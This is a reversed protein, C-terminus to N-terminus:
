MNEYQVILRHVPPSDARYGMFLLDDVVFVDFM